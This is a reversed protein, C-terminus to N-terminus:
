SIRLVLNVAALPGKKASRNLPNDEQGAVTASDGGVSSGAGASATVAPSASASMAAARAQIEAGLTPSRLFDLGPLPAPTVDPSGLRFEYRHQPLSFLANLTVSGVQHGPRTMESAKVETASVSYLRGGIELSRRIASSHEIQGLFTFGQQADVKFVRLAAADSWGESVPLALIGEDAFYSFAHHDTLAESDDMREGPSLTQRDVSLPTTPDSVDFLSLQLGAYRGSAADADRGFGILHDADIPHLYTSFGPVKLEGAVQPQEADSLDLVFLPDVTRFTVVYGRDGIFRVSQIREDAALGTLSGVVDLSSGHQQLIFLNNSLGQQPWGPPPNEINETTAIRFYGDHEDMSFQNVIAGRVTGTAVLPVGDARLDFKYIASTPETWWGGRWGAQAQSVVYLSEASMYIEGGSGAVTTASVPGALGNDVDFAAVTLLDTGDACDPLWTNDLDILSGSIEQEGVPGNVMTSYSPLLTEIDAARLRAEYTAQTEYRQVGDEGTLILPAPTKDNEMVVFVRDDIARSEVLRGDLITEQVMVPAARDAIDFVTVKLGLSATLGWPSGSDFATGILGLSDILGGSSGLVLTPMILPMGDKAFRNGGIESLVTLRDNYLYMAVTQGQISTSAEVHLQSAPWADVITLGGDAVSYIYRGDTEVLDGEDVGTVQVNTTSSSTTNTATGLVSFSGGAVADSSGLFVIGGGIWIPFDIDWRWGTWAQQGFLNRNNEIGARILWDRLVEGSGAPALAYAASAPRSDLVPQDTAVSDGSLFLRPELPEFFVPSFDLADRRDSM